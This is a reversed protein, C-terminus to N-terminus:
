TINKQAKKLAEQLIYDCFDTHQQAVKFPIMGADPSTFSKKVHSLIKKEEIIAIAFTHATSEIGLCIM